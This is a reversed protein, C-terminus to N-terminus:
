GMAWLQQGIYILLFLGLCTLIATFLRESTASGYDIIQESAIGRRHHLFRLTALLIIVTGFLILLLGTCESVDLHRVPSSRAANHGIYALFLDFREILFGFAIIAIATRVWALYTRENAAHDSFQPIM